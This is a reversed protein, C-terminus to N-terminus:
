YGPGADSLSTIGGLIVRSVLLLTPDLSRRRVKTERENWGELSHQVQRVQGTPLHQRAREVAKSASGRSIEADKEM